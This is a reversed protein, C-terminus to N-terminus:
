SITLVYDEGMAEGNMEKLVVTRECRGNSFPCEAATTIVEIDCTDTLNRMKENQLERGNDTLVKRPVGFVSIWKKMLVKIIDEPKTKVWEVQTYWSYQDM